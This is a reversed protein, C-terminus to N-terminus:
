PLRECTAKMSSDIDVVDFLLNGPLDAGHSFTCSIVARAKSTSRVASSAAWRAPSTKRALSIKM